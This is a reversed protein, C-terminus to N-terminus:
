TLVQNSLQSFIRSDVGKQYHSFRCASFRSQHLTKRIGKRGVYYNMSKMKILCTRSNNSLVTSRGYCTRLLPLSDGIEKEISIKIKSNFSCSEIIATTM